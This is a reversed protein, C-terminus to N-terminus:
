RPSKKLNRLELHGGVVRVLIRGRIRREMQTKGERVIHPGGDKSYGERSMNGLKRPVPTKPGQFARESADVNGRGAWIRHGKVLARLGGQCIM